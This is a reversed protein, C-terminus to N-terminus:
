NLIIDLEEFGFKKLQIYDNKMLNVSKYPGSILNIEKNNKKNIKIKKNDFNPIEKIIRQRLFEASEVSYFSAILISVKEKALKKVKKNQSINSIEVSTVPANSSIKKEENFIKAKKAIFSKNKKVEIIEIIPLDNSINLKKAVAESILIKYFEPYRGKKQNKLTISQNTKPNIVKILTGIPLNKQAIQYIENNLKTKIIKNKFDNENYIYAFGKSNFPTKNELKTYHISCSVLLFFLIIYSYRM